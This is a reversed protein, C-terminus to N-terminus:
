AQGKGEVLGVLHGCVGATVAEDNVVFVKFIADVALSFAREVVGVVEADEEFTESELNTRIRKLMRFTM